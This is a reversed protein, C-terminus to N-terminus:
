KSRALIKQEVERLKKRTLDDQPKLKLVVGYSERADALNNMEVYLDGLKKYASIDKPNKMIKDIYRKEMYTYYYSDSITDVEPQKVAEMYESEVQDSLLGQVFTDAKDEIPQESSEISVEIDEQTTISIQEEKRQKKPSSPAVPTEEILASFGKQKSPTHQVQIRPKSSAKPTAPKELFSTDIEASAPHTDSPEQDNAEREQVARQIEKDRAIRAQKSAESNAEARKDKFTQISQQLQTLLSKMLVQISQTARQPNPKKSPLQPLHEQPTDKVDFYTISIEEDQDESAHEKVSSSQLVLVFLALGVILVIIIILIAGTM